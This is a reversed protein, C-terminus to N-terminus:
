ERSVEVKQPEHATYAIMEAELQLRTIRRQLYPSFYGAYRKQLDPLRWDGGTVRGRCTPAGCGCDFEDYPSGDSMAYDFCVEESPFIDRMAVVSIQGDLGANPQCSHNIYDGPDPERMTALYANEEVQVSHAQQEPSLTHLQDYNVIAGGWVILLEGTFIHTNAFVGFNGKDPNPRATLKASVHHTVQKNM